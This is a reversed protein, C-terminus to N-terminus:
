LSGDLVVGSDLTADVASADVVIAGDGGLLGDLVVPADGPDPDPPADVFGPPADPFLLFGDGGADPIGEVPTLDVVRTCAYGLAAAALVLVLRRM